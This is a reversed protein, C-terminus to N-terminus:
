LNPVCTMRLVLERVDAANRRVRIVDAIVVKGTDIRRGMLVGVTFDPDNGESKVTAALDWSRVWRAVTAPREAIVPADARLFYM